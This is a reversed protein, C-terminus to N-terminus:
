KKILDINNEILKYLKQEDIIVTNSEYWDTMAKKTPLYVKYRRTKRDNGLFMQKVRGIRIKTRSSTSFIFEGKNFETDLVDKSRVVETGLEKKM